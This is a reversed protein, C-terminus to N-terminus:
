KGKGALGINFIDLDLKKDNKLKAVIEGLVRKKIELYKEKPLEVNAIAYRKSKTNFCFMCNTLGECNHCFYSDTCNSCDNMEFCRTLKASHYCNISFSSVVINSCGFVNECERIWYGYGVYKSFWTVTIQLCHQAPGYCSSEIIDGVEGYVIEPTTTSIKSLAATANALSLTTVEDETLRNVGHKFSEDLTLINDKMRLFFDVSVVNVPKGSAISKKQIVRGKVHSLLWASYDRVNTLKSGFLLGTVTQFSNEIEEM